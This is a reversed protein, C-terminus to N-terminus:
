LTLHRFMIITLLTTAVMLPLFIIRFLKSPSMKKIKRPNDTQIGPTPTDIFTIDDLNVSSVVPEEYPPVTFDVDSFDYVTNEGGAITIFDDSESTNISVKDFNSTDVTFVNTDASATSLGVLFDDDIHDTKCPSMEDDGYIEDYLLSWANIM